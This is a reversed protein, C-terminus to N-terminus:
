ESKEGTLESIDADWNIPEIETKEEVYLEPRDNKHAVALHRSLNVLSKTDRDCIPCQTTKRKEEPTEGLQYTSVVELAAEFEGDIDEGTNVASDRRLANAINKPVDIVKGKAFEFIQGDFQRVYVEGGHVSKKFQKKKRLVDLVHKKDTLKLRVQTTEISM